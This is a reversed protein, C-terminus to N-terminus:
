AYLAKPPTPHYPNLKLVLCIYSMITAPTISEAITPWLTRTSAMERPRISNSMLTQTTRSEGLMWFLFYIYYIVLCYLSQHEKYRILGYLRNSWVIM